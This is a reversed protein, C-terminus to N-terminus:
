PSFEQLLDSCCSVTINNLYAKFRDSKMEWLLVWIFILAAKNKQFSSRDCVAQQLLDGGWGPVAMLASGATWVVSPSLCFGNEQVCRVRRDPEASGYAAPAPPPTAHSSVSCSVESGAPPRGAPRPRRGTNEVPAGMGPVARPGGRRRCRRPFAAWPRLM